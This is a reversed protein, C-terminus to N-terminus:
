VDDMTWGDRPTTRLPSQEADYADNYERETEEWRRMFGHLWEIQEPKVPFDAAVYASVEGDRVACLEFLLEDASMGPLANATLWADYEDVLPRMYEDYLDPSASM